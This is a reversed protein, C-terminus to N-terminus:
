FLQRMQIWGFLNGSTYTNTAFHVGTVGKEPIRSSDFKDTIMPTAQHEFPSAHFVEAKILKDYISLAKDVTQDLNRYSVQACCSASIKKATELDINTTVGETFYLLEGSKSRKTRIYPLHWEGAKLKQPVSLRQAKRMCKALESIEPQADKHDRLNYFNELETATVVVKYMECFETPRNAWQKHLGLWNFYLALSTSFWVGAKWGLKAATLRWGTLEGESQMGSKNKGWVFPVYPNERLLKVKKKVPIARSSAANKSIMKHTLFESWIMRPLEMEFSTIRKGSPSISDGLVKVKIGGKGNIETMNEEM